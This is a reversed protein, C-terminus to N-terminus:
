RKTSRSFNTVKRTIYASIKLPHQKSEGALVLSDTVNPKFLGVPSLPGLLRRFVPMKSCEYPCVISLMESLAIGLRKDESCYVRQFRNESFYRHCSISACAITGGFYIGSYKQNGIRLENGIKAARRYSRSRNKDYRIRTQRAPPHASVIKSGDLDLPGIM